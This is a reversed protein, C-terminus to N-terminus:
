ETRNECNSFVSTEYCCVQMPEQFSNIELLTLLQEKARILLNEGTSEWDPKVKVSASRKYRNFNSSSLMKRTVEPQLTLQPCPLVTNRGGWRRSKYFPASRSCKLPFNNFKVSSSYTTRLDKWVTEFLLVENMRLSGLLLLAKMIMKSSSVLPFM